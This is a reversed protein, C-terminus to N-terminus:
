LGYTVCGVGPANIVLSPVVSLSGLVTTIDPFGSAGVQQHNKPAIRWLKAKGWDM